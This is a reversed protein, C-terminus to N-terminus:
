SLCRASDNLSRERNVNYKETELRRRIEDIVKNHAMAALYRVLEDPRQFEGMRDPAASFSYWVAQAFDLSDFQSRIAKNLKRRVARIVHPAYRDILECTADQSGGRVQELLQQFEGGTARM